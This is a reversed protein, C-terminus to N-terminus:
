LIQIRNKNSHQTPESPLSASTRSSVGILEQKQYRHPNQPFFFLAFILLKTVKSLKFVARKNLTKLRVYNAHFPLQAL